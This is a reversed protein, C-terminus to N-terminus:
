ATAGLVVRSQPKSRHPAHQSSVFNTTPTAGEDVEEQSQSSITLLEIPKTLTKSFYSHSDLAVTALNRTPAHTPPPLTLDLSGGRNLLSQIRKTHM